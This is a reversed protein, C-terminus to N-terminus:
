VKKIYQPILHKYKNIFNFVDFIAKEINSSQLIEVAKEIFNIGDFKVCSLYYPAICLKLDLIRVVAEGVLMSFISFFNNKYNYTCKIGLVKCLKAVCIEKVIEDATKSFLFPRDMNMYKCVKDIIYNNSMDFNTNVECYLNNM